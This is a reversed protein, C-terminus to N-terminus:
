EEDDWAGGNRLGQTGVSSALLQPQADLNVVEIEPSVYKKKEGFTAVDNAVEIEFNQKM